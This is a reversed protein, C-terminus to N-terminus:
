RKAAEGVRYRSKAPPAVPQPKRLAPRAPNRTVSDLVVGGAM